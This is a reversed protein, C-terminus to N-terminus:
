MSFSSMFKRGLSTSKSRPCFSTELLTEAALIKNKLEVIPYKGIFKGGLLECLMEFCFVKFTIAYAMQAATNHSGTGNQVIKRDCQVCLQRM